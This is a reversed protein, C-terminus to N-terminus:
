ILIYQMHFHNNGEIDKSLYSQMCECEEISQADMKEIDRSINLGDNSVSRLNPYIGYSFCRIYFPEFTLAGEPQLMKKCFEKCDEASVPATREDGRLIRPIPGNM